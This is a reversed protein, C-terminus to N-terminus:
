VFWDTLATYPFLRQKNESGCLVCLYVLHASVHFKRFNFRATCITVVVPPVYLSWLQGYMYYGCSATYITVIVPSIYLSWLQRYIYHGCSATGITVVVPPVYLSWLQRYMYYANPQLITINMVFRLATSWEIGKFGSIKASLQMLNHNRFCLVWSDSWNMRNSSIHQLTFTFGNVRMQLFHRHIYLATNRNAMIPVLSAAVESSRLAAQNAFNVAPIRRSREQGCHRSISPHLHYWTSGVPIKTSHRGFHQNFRM